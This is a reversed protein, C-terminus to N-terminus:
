GLCLATLLLVQDGPARGVEWSAGAHLALTARHMLLVVQPFAIGPWPQLATMYCALHPQAAEHPLTM